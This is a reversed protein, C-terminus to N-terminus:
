RGAGRASWWCRCATTTTGTGTGSGGGYVLLCQDLLTGGGEPIGKLKGVLGAFLEVHFRNIKAIKAQKEPDNQHHSLEHHNDPVGLFPYTRGSGERGYM